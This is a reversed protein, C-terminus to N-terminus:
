EETHDGEDQGIVEEREENAEFNHGDGEVDENTYRRFVKDRGFGGEFVEDETGEGGCEEEKAKSKDIAGSAESEEGM